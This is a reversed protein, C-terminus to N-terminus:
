GTSPSFVTPLSIAIDSVKLEGVSPKGAYEAAWAFLQLSVTQGAFLTHAVPQLPITLTHPHGDLTVPIPTVQNGLVLGTTNDLLQAYVHTGSGTGSYSVTLQPAGVVYTTADPAPTVLNIANFAKTGGFPFVLFMPGSGAVFPILPLVDVGGRPGQARV